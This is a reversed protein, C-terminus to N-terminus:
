FPGELSTKLSLISRLSRYYIIFRPGVGFSGFGRLERFGSVRCMVGAPMTETNLNLTDTARCRLKDHNASSKKTANQWVVCCGVYLLCAM